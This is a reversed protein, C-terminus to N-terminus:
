APAQGTSNTTNGNAEGGPHDETYLPETEGYESVLEIEHGAHEKLFHFVEHGYGGVINIELCGYTDAEFAANIHPAARFVSRLIEEGHNIETESHCNDTKCHYWWERSM